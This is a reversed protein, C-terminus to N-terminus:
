YCLVAKEPSCWCCFFGWISFYEENLFFRGDRERVEGHPLKELFQVFSMRLADEFEDQDDYGLDEALYMAIGAAPLWEAKGNYYLEEVESLVRGVEQHSVDMQFSALM